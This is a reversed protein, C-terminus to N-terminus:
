CFLDVQVLRERKEIGRVQTRGQSTKAFNM